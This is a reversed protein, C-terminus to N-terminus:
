FEFCAPLVDLLLIINWGFYECKSWGFTMVFLTGFRTFARVSALRLAVIHALLRFRLLFRLRLSLKDLCFLNLFRWLM